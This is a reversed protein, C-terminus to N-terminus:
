DEHPLHNHPYNHLDFLWDGDNKFMEAQANCGNHKNVCELFRYIIIIKLYNLATSIFNFYLIFNFLM